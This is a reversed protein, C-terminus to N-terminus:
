CDGLYCFVGLFVAAITILDFLARTRASRTCCVLPRLLGARLPEGLRADRVLLELQTRQGHVVNVSEDPM